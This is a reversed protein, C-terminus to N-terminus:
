GEPRRSEPHDEHSMLRYDGLGTPLQQSNDEDVVMEEDDNDMEEPEEPARYPVLGMQPNVPWPPPLDFESDDQAM